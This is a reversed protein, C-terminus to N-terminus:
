THYFCGRDCKKEIYLQAGLIQQISPLTVTGHGPQHLAQAEQWMAVDPYGPTSSYTDSQLTYAKQEQDRALSQWLIVTKEIEEMIQVLTKGLLGQKGAGM